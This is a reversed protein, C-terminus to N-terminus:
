IYVLINNIPVMKLFTHVILNYMGFTCKKYYSRCLVIISYIKM